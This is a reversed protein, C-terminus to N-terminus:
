RKVVVVELYESPVVMTRDGSKNFRAILEELDAQLAAQGAQDLAEFAKLTPGYTTRFLEIWAKPSTQRFTFMRSEGSVTAAGAGFWNRLNDLVGWRSPSQVGPPPAVHKGVTKFLNGIFGDPTWNALGVKGGSRCVRLLEAAAREQDPAFMVGFTSVVYDFSNDEFPLAEADAQQFRIPLRDAAARDKARELLEPVYDTSIVDCARRAAALSVNGNGAAVDLVRAGSRVDLAECLSEGVIQLTVGVAAYDGSAWMKQQKEKIAQFPSDSPAAVVSSKM